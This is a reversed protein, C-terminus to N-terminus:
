GELLDALQRPTVVTIGHYSGLVLLDQDGTVIHDVRGDAAAALVHDDTPDRTVRQVDRPRRVDAIGALEDRVARTAAAPRGFRERLVRELEDLLVDSTVFEIEGRFARGLLDEPLGGYLIGSVLVNTDFL